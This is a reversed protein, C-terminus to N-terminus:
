GNGDGAEANSGVEKLLHWVEDDNIDRLMRYNNDKLGPDFQCVPGYGCYACSTMRRKRYPKISVEGRLMEEGIKALLRKIFGRLVEFQEGTAASSRGLVDGKNIRAPIILSDGDIQRDMERVLRVDALLLGKMKLQKMIAAEIEDESLGKGNAVVPDDIKFYLMGGPLVPESSSKFGTEWVADMYALLQIQLGYYIDSLKFAKSGSKYDIIRFYTGEESEMADIRDIRGTLMIAEGSPLEIKISPFDKGDGFEMEYGVPEFGSRKFHEAILWIARVLVRKLRETLHMHRRSSSMVSGPMSKLLEDVTQSVMSECAERGLERWAMGEKDMRKSFSDLVSHMFSGIDPAGMKFIKREKARLGYQLYYAFPCSVFSEMRSVSSYVPSGYLKRVKDGSIPSEQNTYLLGEMAREIRDRWNDHSTYWRYVDGWVADVREGEFHRRMAEILHNFSPQKSAVLAIGEEGSATINSYEAIGPFVRKLRSIIGSPRMTRGEHDAVPCSLRLYKGARTLATYIIYNEEFARSRTDPALELGKARLSERDSDSLIGEQDPSSPFIGDNVGLIYLAKIEHSKSREISGVLVQDLAPPILGMKYEGFGIELVRYFSEIGTPENGMVEVIQDFVEMVMNWVQSYQGALYFDGSAKLMDVKKEIQEPVGIGCLFDFMAGCIEWAKKRGGTRTRFRVLPKVIMDRIENVRKLIGLQYESPQQGPQSLGPIYEWPKDEAWRGGKIGCALVYNELMDVDEKCIGAFGTKLYQFVSQYSWSKIFIEFVANILRILPQSGIDRKTDIFCPIGHHAFIAAVLKEYGSLNGTVVAIDRYRLGGDRCLMIIDRATDEVESYLNASLFIKIDNTPGNYVKRPLSFFNGELHMLEESGSFRYFPRQSLQSPAEIEVGNERAIRELKKVTNKVPWFVDTEDAGDDTMCDTCLCINVRVAKKLLRGIVGYEQPTFGSFEDIWIEANDFWKSDELKAALITLDDDSDMYKEHLVKEFEAYVLGIEKLKDKLPGEREIGKAALELMQPTINYRKFESISSCVTNVFGKRDVVGSFMDLRDKMSNIIRYVLMCRGAPSIHRRTIGGVENFVKYAMRRFSLVEARMIGGIGAAAILNREAQLSFQEPVLLVLNRGESSNLKTRLDNLCFHSKGSGARGYIFKLGM